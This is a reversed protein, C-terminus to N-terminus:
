GDVIVAWYLLFPVVHQAWWFNYQPRFTQGPARTETGEPLQKLVKGRKIRQRFGDTGFLVVRSCKRAHTWFAVIAPYPNCYADFDAVAFRDTLGPFPWSTCDAHIITADPLRSQARRVRVPDLDAGFLRSKTHCAVALDGDGIFPLYTAGPVAKRLVRQRLM